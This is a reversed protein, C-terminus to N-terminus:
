DPVRLYFDTNSNVKIISYKKHMGWNPLWGDQRPATVLRDWQSKEGQSNYPTCVTMSSISSWPMHARAKGVQM